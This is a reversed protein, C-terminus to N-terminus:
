DALLFFILQLIAIRKVLLLTFVLSLVLFKMVCLFFYTKAFIHKRFLKIDLNTSIAHHIAFPKLGLCIEDLLIKFINVFGYFRVLIVMFFLVMLLAFHFKRILILEVSLISIVVGKFISFTCLIAFFNSILRLLEHFFLLAFLM